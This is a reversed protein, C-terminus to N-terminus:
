DLLEPHEAVITDYYHTFGRGGYPGVRGMDKAVQEDILLPKGAAEALLQAHCSREAAIFYWCAEDVGRGLTLLGHNQLIVLKNGPVLQAIRKGESLDLVVGTFEDFVAQSGYFRCADQTIPDLLRGLSSWAKGYVSHAHAASVIEPNEALVQSHIAFGAQNMPQSGVVIMGDVNILQLDSVKMHGFPVTLPAMWFHDTLEPDRATIHGIAGEDFEYKAFLRYAAALQRKRHLREDEVSDFTPAGTRPLSDIHFPETTITM